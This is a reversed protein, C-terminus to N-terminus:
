AYQITERIRRLFRASLGKRQRIVEVRRGFKRELYIQLGALFEFCPEKLEVLVDIDSEPRETGKAYSGFLGISLVGFKEKLYPKEQRLAELIEQNNM